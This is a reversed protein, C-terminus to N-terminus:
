TMCMMVAIIPTNDNVEGNRGHIQHVTVGLIWDVLELGMGSEGELFGPYHGLAYVLLHVLVALGSQM